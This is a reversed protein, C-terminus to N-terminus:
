IERDEDTLLCPKYLFIYSERFNKKLSVVSIVNKKPEGHKSIMKAMQANFGVALCVVM